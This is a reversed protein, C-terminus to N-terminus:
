SKILLKITLDSTSAYTPTSEAFLQGFLSTGGDVLVVHDSQASEVHCIANDTFAEYDAAVFHIMGIVNALDADTPDFAANDATATFTRDFLVLHLLVAQNGKDILIAGVIEADPQFASCVNEFELLGGVADGSSYAGATVTPTATVVKVTM